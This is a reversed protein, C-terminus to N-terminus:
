LTIEVKSNFKYIFFIMGNYWPSKGWFVCAIQFVL